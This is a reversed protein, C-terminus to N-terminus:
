VSALSPSGKTRVIRAPFLRVLERTAVVGLFMLCVFLCPFWPPYWQDVVLLGVTAWFLVTGIILRTLIM